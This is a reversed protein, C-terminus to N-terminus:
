SEEEWAFVSWAPPIFGGWGVQMDTPAGQGGWSGGGWGSGYTADFWDFAAGLASDIGWTTSVAASPTWVTM